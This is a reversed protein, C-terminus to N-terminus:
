LHYTTWGLVAREVESRRMGGTKPFLSFWPNDWAFLVKASSLMASALHVCDPPKVGYKAGLEQAKEAVERGLEISEIWGHEMFERFLGNVEDLEEQDFPVSKNNRRQVETMTWFSTYIKYDGRRAGELIASAIQVRWLGGHALLTEKKISALFVSSDIYPDVIVELADLGLTTQSAM